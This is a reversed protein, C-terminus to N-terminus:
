LSIMRSSGEVDLTNERCPYGPCGWFPKGANRGAKALRQRMPKGCEPCEPAGAEAQQQDRTELRVASLRERFGGVQRFAEGKSVV